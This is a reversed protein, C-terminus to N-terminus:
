FDSARVRERGGCTPLRTYPHMAILQPIDALYGPSRCFGRGKIARDYWPPQDALRMGRRDTIDPHGAIVVGDRRLLTVSEGPVMSITACFDELYQTDILGAVLGLFVGDLGNIRRVIFMVSKGTLRGMTPESIFVGADDHDRLHHFYDRNSFSANPAPGDESWNVLDGTAGIVAIMRARPLNRGYNILFQHAADGTSEARFQEPSHIELRDSRPQVERLVLDVSQVM